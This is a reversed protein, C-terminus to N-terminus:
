YGRNLSPAASKEVQERHRADMRASRESELGVVCDSFADTKPQYGREVCREENRKAQQEATTICGQATLGILLILTARWLSAMMIPNHRKAPSAPYASIASFKPGFASAAHSRRHVSKPRLAVDSAPDSIPFVRMRSSTM